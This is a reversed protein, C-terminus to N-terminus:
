YFTFTQQHQVTYIYM